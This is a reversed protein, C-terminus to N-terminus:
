SNLSLFGTKSCKDMFDDASAAENKQVYKLLDWATIANLEVGAQSKMEELKGNLSSIPHFNGAVYCLGQLSAADTKGHEDRLEEWSPIYTNLAKAQDQHPLSYKSYAKTDLLMAVDNHTMVIDAYSGAKGLPRRLQGTLEARIPLKQLLKSTAEEFPIGKASSGGNALEIYKDEFLSTNMSSYKSVVLRVVSADFGLDSMDREFKEVDSNLLVDSSLFEFFKAKVLQEAVNVKEFGSGSATDKKGDWAGFRKMFSTPNEKIKSTDDEIFKDLSKNAEEIVDVATPNIYNVLKGNLKERYTLQGSARWCEFTNAINQIDGSDLREDVSKGATKITWLDFRDDIVDKLPKGDERMENIKKVCLEHCGHNVGYIVAVCIEDRTLFGFEQILNLLFLIPKVKVSSSISVNQGVSYVSPYQMRLLQSRLIHLASNGKLIDRGAKTLTLKKSSDKYLFGLCTLQAVYTRDGGPNKDYSEFDRKLGKEQLLQKVESDWDGNEQAQM